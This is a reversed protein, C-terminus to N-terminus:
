YVVEQYNVVIYIYGVNGYMDTVNLRYTTEGYTDPLSDPWGVIDETIDNGDIDTATVGAIEIVEQITSYTGIFFRFSQNVASLYPNESEEVVITFEYVTDNFTATARYSGVQLTNVESLNLEIKGLNEMSGNFYDAPDNGLPGNRQITFTDQKLTVEDTEVVINDESYNSVYPEVKKTASYFFGFVILILLASIALILIVKEFKDLSYKIKM